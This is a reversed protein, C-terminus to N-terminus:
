LSLAREFEARFEPAVEDLLRFIQDVTRQPVREDRAALCYRLVRAGFQRLGPVNGSLSDPSALVEGLLLESLARGHETLNQEADLGSPERFLNCVTSAWPEAPVRSLDVRLLVVVIRDRLIANKINRWFRALMEVDVERHWQEDKASVFDLYWEVVPVLDETANAIALAEQITRLVGTALTPQLLGIRDLEYELKLRADLQEDTNLRPNTLQSLYERVLFSNLLANYNPTAQPWAM